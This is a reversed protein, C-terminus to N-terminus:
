LTIFDKLVRGVVNIEAETLHENKLISQIQHSDVSPVLINLAKLQDISLRMAAKIDLIASEADLISLIRLAEVIAIKSGLIAQADASEGKALHEKVKQLESLRLWKNSEQFIQLRQRAYVITLM